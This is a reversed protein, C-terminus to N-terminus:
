LFCFPSASLFLRLSCLKWFGGLTCLEWLVLRHLAALSFGWWTTCPQWLFGLGGFPAPSGSFFCVALRHLSGCFVWVALRRLGAVFVWLVCPALSGLFGGGFLSRSRSFVYWM